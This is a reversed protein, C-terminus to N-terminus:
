SVEEVIPIVCIFKLPFQGTNKFQHWENPLVLVAQGASVPHEEEKGVLVGQGELIYVEHEYNHQHYPSFGGPAVEFLRMRFNPAGDKESLLVWKKVGKASDSDFIQPSVDSLVKIKM